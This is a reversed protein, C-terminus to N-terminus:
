NENNKRSEKIKKISRHFKSSDQGKISNILRRELEDADETSYQKQILEVLNIASEIVNTARMEILNDADRSEAISNLEELISRTKLKM